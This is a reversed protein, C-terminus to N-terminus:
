SIKHSLEYIMGYIGEPIADLSAPDEGDPTDRVTLSVYERLADILNHTASRGPADGDMFITVKPFERLLDLQPKSVKAGFTAVVNTVGRSKLVLVSMPSEVVYVHQMVEVNDYNYLSYQRPFSKSNKYKAVGEINDTKRAVWGVLRNNIFHPLVVRDVEVYSELGNVRAIERRGRDLGTKMEKQVQLSVGRETLYDTSTIWRDLIRENYVPIDFRSQAENAFMKNLRDIFDEIPVVKLGDAYNKLETAATDRDVDLCNQVLWVISGGGCTFCNFLLSERNLSASPNSDGNKHMGFPLKCSHILENGNEIIEHAGILDRLVGEADLGRFVDSLKIM